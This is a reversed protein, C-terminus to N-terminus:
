DPFYTVELGYLYYFITLHSHSEKDLMQRLKPFLTLAAPLPYLETVLIALHM